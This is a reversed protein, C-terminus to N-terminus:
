SPPEEIEQRLDDLFEEATCIRFPFYAAVERLHRDYSVLHSAEGNEACLVFAIDDTDVPYVPLHFFEIEVEVGLTLLAVLFSKITEASVGKERLKEIYELLTDESFLISFQNQKWREFYERNPSAPGPRLASALVVNTDPVTKLSSSPPAMM